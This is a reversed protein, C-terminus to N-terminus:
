INIFLIQNNIKKYDELENAKLESYGYILNQTFQSFFYRAHTIYDMNNNSYDIKNNFNNNNDDTLIIQENKKLISKKNLSVFNYNNISIGEISQKTMILEIYYAFTRILKKIFIYNKTKILLKYFNFIDNLELHKNISILFALLINWLGCYGGGWDIVAKDSKYKIPNDIRLKKIKIPNYEYSQTDMDKIIKVIQYNKFFSHGDIFYKHILYEFYNEIYTNDIYLKNIITEMPDYFYIYEMEIDLIISIRHASGLINEIKTILTKKSTFNSLYGIIMYYRNKCNKINTILKEDIIFDIDIIFNRCFYINQHNLDFNIIYCKIIINYLLDLENYNDNNDTKFKKYMNLINKIYEDNSINNEDLIYIIMDTFPKINNIIELLKPIRYISSARYYINFQNKNNQRKINNFCLKLNNNDILNYMNYNCLGVINKLNVKNKISPLIINTDKYKISLINIIDEDNNDNDIINDNVKDTELKDLNIQKSYEVKGTKNYQNEYTLQEKYLYKNFKLFLYKFFDFLPEFQGHVENIIFILYNTEINIYLDYSELKEINKKNEIDM